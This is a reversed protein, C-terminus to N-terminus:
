ASTSEVESATQYSSHYRYGYRYKHVESTVGNAIVGLIRIGVSELREAASRVMPLQSVERLVSLVVGDAHQGLLLSDVVPLLPASDIIIYEYRERLSKLLNPLRTRALAATAAPSWQGGSIVSLNDIASAHIAQDLEVEQRLLESLGKDSEINLAQHISPQRMDGDILLTRFGARALSAALHCSLSTKGEGGFASTVLVVRSDNERAIHLLNTRTADICETLLNAADDSRAANWPLLSRTGSPLAPLAGVVKIGLDVTLEQPSDLRRHRYERWSILGVVLFLAATAAGATAKTRQRELAGLSASADELKTVREPADVEVTLNAVEAAVRETVKEAREIQVKLDNIEAEDVNTTRIEKRLSEVSDALSRELEESMAIRMRLEDASTRRDIGMKELLRETIAPRLRARAAELMAEAAKLKAIKSKLHPEDMGKVAIQAALDLEKKMENYDKALRAIEPERDLAQEVSAAPVEPAPAKGKGKGEKYNLAIKMKRLEGRVSLLERNTTGLAETAHKQKVALVSADGSGLAITLQKVQERKQRLNSEHRSLLEKLYDLRNKKRIREKNVVEKLYVERVADLLTKMEEAQYGVMTVKMIEPGTKFDVKIQEQLWDIQQDLDPIERIISLRAIAPDKLVSNLVLRSTVMAAQTKQYVQFESNGQVENGLIKPERSSVHLATSATYKVPMGFWVAVGAVASVLVGCILALLWRRRLAKLLALANPASQGKRASPVVATSTNYPVIATTQDPQIMTM